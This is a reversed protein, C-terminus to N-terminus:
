GRDRLCLSSERVVLDPTVQTNRPSPLEGRHHILEIVREVALQSVRSANYDVTTLPTVAYEAFEINDFGVIAVDTPM